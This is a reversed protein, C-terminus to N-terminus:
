NPGTYDGFFMNKSRSANSRSLQGLPTSNPGGEDLDRGQGRIRREGSRSSDRSEDSGSGPTAPTYPGGAGGAHYLGQGAFDCFQADRGSRGNSPVTLDYM